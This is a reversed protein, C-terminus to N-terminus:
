WVEVSVEETSPEKELATAIPCEGNKKWFCRDDFCEKMGEYMFCEEVTDGERVVTPKKVKVAEKLNRMDECGLKEPKGTL